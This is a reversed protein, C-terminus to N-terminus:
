GRVRSKSSAYIKASPLLARSRVRTSRPVMGSEQDFRYEAGEIDGHAVSVIRLLRDQARDVVGTIIVGVGGNSACSNAGQM